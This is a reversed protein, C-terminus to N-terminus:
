VKTEMQRLLISESVVQKVERRFARHRNFKEKCYEHLLAGAKEVEGRAAHVEALSGLVWAARQYASRHTNSVIGDVRDRGIRFAWNIYQKMSSSQFSAQRLGRIIEDRFFGAPDEEISFHYSYIASRGSYSSLLKQITGANERYNAAVSCISGFVLGTAPGYSWGLSKSGKVIKWASDLHGAMLLAKLYLSKENNSLEKQRAYFDLIQALTKERQDQKVAETLLAQLNADCAHSYFKELHGGLVVAPDNTMRGAEALFDSVKERAQGTKLVTLAEKAINQIEGWRNEQGLRDLWFLYGYPQVSGWKRALEGVGALGRTFCVVEALLSAPRGQTGGGELFKEWVPFFEQIGKMKKEGADMVDQLLPYAGDIKQSDFRYSVGIDMADAFEDLRSDEGSTEYVCRAYRARAERLEVGTDPMVYDSEDLEKLLEFLAQYLHRADLFAGNLFLGGAEDFLGALDDLQTESIMEPEDDYRADEWDWDDLADYDGNEIAEIREMISEKLGQVDELLAELDSRKPKIVNKGAPSLINLRELFQVRGSAAENKALSLVLQVLEEGSLQRCHEEVAELYPKLAIPKNRNVMNYKFRKNKEKGYDGRIWDSRGDM